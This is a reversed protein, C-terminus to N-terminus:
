GNLDRDYGTRDGHASLRVGGRNRRRCQDLSIERCQAASLGCRHKVVNVDSRVRGPRCSADLEMLGIQSFDGPLQPPPVPDVNPQYPRPELMQPNRPAKLVFWEILHKVQDGCREIELSLPIPVDHCEPTSLTRILVTTSLDTSSDM